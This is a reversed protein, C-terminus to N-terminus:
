DSLHKLALSGDTVVRRMLVMGVKKYERGRERHIRQSLNGDSAHLPFNGNQIDNSSDKM